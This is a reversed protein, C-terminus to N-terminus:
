LFTLLSLWSHGELSLARACALCHESASGNEIQYIYKKTRFLFM